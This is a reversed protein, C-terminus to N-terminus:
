PAYLEISTAATGDLLVGGVVGIHSTPLLLAAAGRRAERLPVPTAAGEAALTVAATTGDPATGVVLAGGSALAYATADDLEVEDGLPEATCSTACALDFTASPAPAGDLLRGGARLVTTDGRGVLGAGAAAEPAFQLPVFAQAGDALLEIGAGDASGAAVVLGRGDVWAAAAGARATLLHAATLTRDAKVRLVTRTAVARRTAGVVYVSGDPAEIARGGAVEAYSSMGAPLPADGSALTELDVWIAWSPGIGLLLTRSVMALSLLRCPTAPCSLRPSSALPAWFGLDYGDTQVFGDPSSGAVIVYRGAAVAATGGEGPPALLNGSPRSFSSSRGVFLPLSRGAFGEPEVPLSRGFVRTTGAADRGNIEYSAVSGRGLSVRAAPAPVTAITERSGSGDIRDVSVTLPAPERSWTDSEQGATLELEGPSFLEESGCGVALMGVLFARARV